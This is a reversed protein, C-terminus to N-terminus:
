PAETPLQSFAPDRDVSPSETRSYPDQPQLGEDSHVNTATHAVVDWLHAPIKLKRRIAARALKGPKARGSLYLSWSSQDVGTIRELKQQTGYRERDSSM